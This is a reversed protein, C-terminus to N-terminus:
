IEAESWDQADHVDDDREILLERAASAVVGPGLALGAAGVIAGLITQVIRTTLPMDLQRQAFEAAAAQMAVPDGRAAWLAAWYDGMVFWSIAIGLVAIVLVVVLYGGFLTWFRGRGLEWGADVSFRRRYLTLPFILSLRVAVWIMAGFVLLFLLLVALGTVTGEGAIMGIFSILFMLLLQVLLMAIFAVIASAVLLLAMRVEDMGLRLSAFSREEPRLVARYVANVLVTGLVLMGLYLILMAGWFGPPPEAGPATEMFAAPNTFSVTGTLWWSMVAGMAFSSAINVVAWALVAGPREALLRFAGSVISGVSAM